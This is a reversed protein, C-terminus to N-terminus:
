ALSRYYQQLREGDDLDFALTPTHVLHVRLGLRAASRLHYAASDTGFGFPLPSPLRVGLANTGRQEQDPALVVDYNTLAAILLRVDDVTLFPLDGALIMMSSCGCQQLHHRAVTLAANLEEVPDPFWEVDKNDTVDRLVPDPSVLWIRAPISQSVISRYVTNIVHRVLTIVLQQRAAPELFGSLRSKAQQLRKVPVVIGIM